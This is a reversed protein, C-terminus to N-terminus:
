VILNKNFFENSRAREREIKSHIKDWDITSKLINILEERSISENIFRDKLNFINLLTTFRNIGRKTNGIAVFPKNFIISFICGHFSDTIVFKANFFGTLWEAISPYIGNNDKKGIHYTDVKLYQSVTSIVKEKKKNKDLIYLMLKDKNTESKQSTNAIKLYETQTLLLTPDVLQQAEKKLFDNCFQLGIDERVSIAQFRQALQQIRKTQKLSYDWNDFGFSAAYALLKNKEKACCNLYYRDINNHIYDRRWVQDSGVIYADFNYKDLYSFDTNSNVEYTKPHIYKQIFENINKRCIEDNIRTENEKASSGIIIKIIAKVHSIIDENKSKQNILWAEHGIKQLYSQLAYAQLIGGYNIHLPLTLIGIKM